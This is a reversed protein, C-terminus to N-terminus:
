APLLLPPAPVRLRERGGGQDVEIEIRSVQDSDVYMYVFVYVDAVQVGYQIALTERLENLLRYGEPYMDKVDEFDVLREPRNINTETPM